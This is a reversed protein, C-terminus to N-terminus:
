RRMAVEEEGLPCFNGFHGTSRTRRRKLQRYDRRGNPFPGAGGCHGKVRKGFGSSLGVELELTQKHAEDLTKKGGVLQQQKIGQDRKGNCFVKGPGRRVHDEHIEPFVRHTL